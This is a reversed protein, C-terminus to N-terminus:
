MMMLVIFSALIMAPGFPLYMFDQQKKLDKLLRYCLFGSTLLLPIIAISFSIQPIKCLIVSVIFLLFGIVTTYDKNKFLKALFLPITLVFQVILSLLIAILFGKWGFLVGMAAAIYTDGEGFARTGAFIYGVRALIEMIVVGCILGLVSFILSSLFGNVLPNLNLLNFLLAFGILFYAHNVFIVKEKLDTVSLVVFMASIAWVFLTQWSFFYKLFVLVFIVGTLFEIIPYQISIKDKCFACKGRLFIYSFIPLNHYWKLKHGCKPCKSAPFVISENSFARLIVVNLFSGICIGLVFILFILYIFVAM